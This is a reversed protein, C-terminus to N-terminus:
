SETLKQRGPFPFHGSVKVEQKSHTHTHVHIFFMPFIFIFNLKRGSLSPLCVELRCFYM